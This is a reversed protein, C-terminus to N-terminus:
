FRVRWSVGTGIFYDTIGQNRGYGGSIDLQLNPNIIYAFGADVRTEFDRSQLEGYNEVFGTLNGVIPFSLNVAYEGLPAATNGDFLLAATMDLYIDKPLSYRAGLVMKTGLYENGYAESIHPIIFRMQYVMAPRWKKENCLS